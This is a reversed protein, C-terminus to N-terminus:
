ETVLKRSISVGEPRYHVGPPLPAAENEARLGDLWERLASNRVVLREETVTPLDDAANTAFWAIIEDVDSQSSPVDWGSNTRRASWRGVGPIDLYKEAGSERRARVAAEIPLELWRIEDTLRGEVTLFQQLIRARESALEDRAAVRRLIARGLGWLTTAPDRELAEAIREEGSPNFAEDPDLPARREDAALEITEDIPLETTM